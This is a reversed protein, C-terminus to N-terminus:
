DLHRRRMFSAIAEGLQEPCEEHVNHGCGDLEVLEASPMAAALRRANFPPIVRDQNGQVILVPINRESLQRWVADDANMPARASAGWPWLDGGPGTQEGSSEGEGWLNYLQQRYLAALYNLTGVDAGKVRTVWRYRFEMSSDLKSPDAYANRLTYRWFLGSHLCYFLVLRLCVAGVRLFLAVVPLACRRGVVCLCSAICAAPAFVHLLWAPLWKRPCPMLAPALLILARPAHKHAMAMRVVQACGLSHGCLLLQEESNSRSSIASSPSAPTRSSAQRRAIQQMLYLGLRTNSADSYGDVEDPRSTLGFGPRDHAMLVLRLHQTCKGAHSGHLSRKFTAFFPEWTLCNSAFGHSFHCVMIGNEHQPKAVATIHHVSVNQGHVGPCSLFRSTQMALCAESQLVSCQKCMRCCQRAIAYVAACVIFAAIPAIVVLPTVILIMVAGIGFALSICAIASAETWTLTPLDLPQISPGDVVRLDGDRIVSETTPVRMVSPSSM